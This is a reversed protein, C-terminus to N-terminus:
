HEWSTRMLNLFEGADLINIEPFLLETEKFDSKNATIITDAGGALALEILHNDAEDKLNPRWLFYIPEWSCVSLFAYYLEFRETKSLIPNQFVDDRGLVDGYQYFLSNGMIPKINGLLCRRIIERPAGNANMLASIFINTDVVVFMFLSLMYAIM